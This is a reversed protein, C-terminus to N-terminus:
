YSATVVPERVLQELRAIVGDVGNNAALAGFESRHTSLLSVGEIVVDLVKDMDQRESVLYDVKMTDGGSLLIKTHTLYKGDEHDSIGLVKIDSIKRERSEAYNEVYVKILYERYLKTYHDRQAQTANRWNYGLVFKAIWDTDVVNAFGQELAHRRDAASKRQERLISIVLGAMEHALAQRKQYQESPTQVQTDAHAVPNHAAGVLVTAAVAMLPFFFRANAM